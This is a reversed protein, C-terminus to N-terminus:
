KSKVREIEPFAPLNKPPPYKGMFGGDIKTQDWDTTIASIQYDYKNFDFKLRMDISELFQAQKVNIDFVDIMPEDSPQNWQNQLSVLDIKPLSHESVLEETKLDYSTVIRVLWKPEHTM